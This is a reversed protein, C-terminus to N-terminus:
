AIVGTMCLIILLLCVACSAAIGIWDWKDAKKPFEYDPSAMEKLRQDTEEYILEEISKEFAKEKQEEM